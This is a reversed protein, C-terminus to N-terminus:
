ARVSEELYACEKYACVVFTIDKGVYKNYKKM